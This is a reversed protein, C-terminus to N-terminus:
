YVQFTCFHREVSNRVITTIHSSTTFLHPRFESFRFIPVTKVQPAIVLRAITFPLCGNFKVHKFSAPVIKCPTRVTITITKPFPSSTSASNQFDSFRSRKQNRLWLWCHYSFISQVVLNQENFLSLSCRECIKQSYHHHSRTLTFTTPRFRSRNQCYNTV